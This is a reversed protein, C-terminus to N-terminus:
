WISDVLGIAGYWFHKKMEDRLISNSFSLCVKPGHLWHHHYIFSHLWHVTQVLWPEKIRPLLLFFNRQEHNKNFMHEKGRLFDSKEELSLSKVFFFHSLFDRWSCTKLHLSKVFFITNSLNLTIKILLLLPNM